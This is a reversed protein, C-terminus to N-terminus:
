TIFAMCSELGDLAADPEEKVAQWGAPSETVSGTVMFKFYPVEPL